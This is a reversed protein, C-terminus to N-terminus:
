DRTLETAAPAGIKGNGNTPSFHPAPSNQMSKPLLQNEFTFGAVAFERQLRELGTKILTIDSAHALFRAGM